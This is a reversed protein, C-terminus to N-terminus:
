GGITLKNSSGGTYFEQARVNMAKAQKLLMSYRKEATELAFIAYDIEDKGLVYDLRQQACVWELQAARLEHLIKSQEEGDMGALSAMGSFSPKNRRNRKGGLLSTWKSWGKGWRIFWAMMRKFM